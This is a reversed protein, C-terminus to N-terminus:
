SRKTRTKPRFGKKTADFWPTHVPEHRGSIDPLDVRTNKFVFTAIPQEPWLDLSELLALNYVGFPGDILQRGTVWQVRGAESTHINGTVDGIYTGVYFDKDGASTGHFVLKPNTMVLGTEEALERAAAEEPTEGLDLKGGPLGFANPDYKRSVGLYLGTMSDRILISAATIKDM